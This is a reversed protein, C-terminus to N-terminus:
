SIEFVHIQRVLATGKDSYSNMNILEVSMDSSLEKTKLARGAQEKFDKKIRKLCENTLKQLEAESERSALQMNSRTLLNVVSIATMKLKGEGVIQVSCKLTGPKSEYSKGFTDNIVTSLTNYDQFNM